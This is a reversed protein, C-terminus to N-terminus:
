EDNVKALKPRAGHIWEWAEANQSEEDSDEGNCIQAADTRSRFHAVDEGHCLKDGQKEHGNRARDVDQVM